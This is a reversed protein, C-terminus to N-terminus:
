RKFFLEKIETYDRSSFPCVKICVSCGYHGAFYPVCKRSDIHTLLGNEHMIPEEFIAEEPCKKM